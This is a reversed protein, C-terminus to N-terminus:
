VIVFIIDREISLLINVTHLLLTVTLSMNFLVYTILLMLEICYIM